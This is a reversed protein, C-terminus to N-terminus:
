DDQNEAQAPMSTTHNERIFLTLVFDLAVLGAAIFFPLGHWMKGLQLGASYTENFLPGALAATVTTVMSMASYVVSINNSSTHLTVLSRVLAHLGAGFSMLIIGIVALGIEPALGLCLAGTGMVACSLLMLTRDKDHSSFNLRESLVYGAFPLLIILLFLQVGAGLSWLYGAKAFTWHYREPVYILLLLALSENGLNSLGTMVLLLLIQVNATLFNSTAKLNQLAAILREKMSIGKRTAMINGNEQDVIGRDGNMDDQPDPEDKRNPLLLTFFASVFILVVGLVWPLWVNYGMLVSATIPGLIGAVMLAAHLRFFMITRSKAPTMDTLVLFFMTSLVTSGGGILQWVWQAWILRIPLSESFWCILLTWTQALALGVCALTLITQHGYKKAVIGYPIALVTPLLETLREVGRLTALEQQVAKVKCDRSQMLRNDVTSYYNCCLVSEYVQIRPSQQMYDGFMICIIILYATLLVRNRSTSNGAAPASAQKAILPTSEDFGNDSEM